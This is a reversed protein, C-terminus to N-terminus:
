GSQLDEFRAFRAAVAETWTPDPDVRHDTRVWDGAAPEQEGAAARALLAAGLAGGEPVAVVDAPLQTADALAQVWRGDRVGGGTCVLRTPGVGARGLIDALAFASAEHAARLAESRGMGIDLDHLSARRDPEHLPVREGRLYPQWVPVRSPDVRDPVSGVPMGILERAWGMFLGGANSPGGLLTLGPVTHPVTWLGDVERWEDIVAWVILTAGLIVLVDGAADAGAVLQEGFADITGAALPAGGAAPVACVSDHGSVIRPLRSVDTLGHTAAVVPDWDTFDYLPLTTMATISDIVGGDLGSESLAANAVAQAPWYGAASPHADVLWELFRALEGSESPNSGQQGGAGRHDGYLLGDSIPRGADDVACLSPVMAAVNVALVERGTMANDDLLTALAAIPGDHWAAAADHALEGAHSAILAHPVRVRAVVHGDADAAIGKVSTTGIDIGITVPTRQGSQM